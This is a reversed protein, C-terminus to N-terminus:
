KFGWATKGATDAAYTSKVSADTVLYSNSNVPLKSKPNPIQSQAENRHVADRKKKPKGTPTRFLEAKGSLRLLNKRSRRLRELSCQMEYFQVKESEIRIRTLILPAKM